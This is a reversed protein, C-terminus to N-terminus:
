QWDVTVHSVKPHVNPDNNTDVNFSDHILAKELLRYMEGDFQRFRSTEMPLGVCNEVVGLIQCTGAYASPWNMHAAAAENLALVISETLAKTASTIIRPSLESQDVDVGIMLGDQADAAELISEYIAGGCSFIVETGEQYWAAAKERIGERPTFSGSYWHKIHVDSIGMDKAAKEAGQIYGNGFRIVASEAMGGIFGLEKYGDAVAAYGALFGAQENRFTLLSVNAPLIAVEMDAQTVALALFLTGPNAKAAELCPKAFAAGAMVVADFDQDVAQQISSLIDDQDWSDPKFYKCFAGSQRSFQQVGEYCAENFGHDHIDSIGTIFAIKSDSADAPPATEATPAQVSCGTLVALTLFVSLLSALLKKM